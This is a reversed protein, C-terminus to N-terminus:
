NSSAFIENKEFTSLVKQQITVFTFNFEDMGVQIRYKPVITLDAAWSPPEYPRLLQQRAASDMTSVGRRNSSTNRAACILSKLNKTQSIDDYCRYSIISTFNRHQRHNSILSRGNCCQKRVSQQILRPFCCFAPNCQMM